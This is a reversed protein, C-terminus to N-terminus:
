LSKVFAVLATKEDDTFNAKFRQNYFEVLAEITTPLGNHMYPSRFEPSRIVPVKFCAIDAWKGTAAAKGPDTVTVTNKPDSWDADKWVGDVMQGKHFTFQPFTAVGNPGRFDDDLPTGDDLKGMLTVPNAEAIGIAVELRTTHNGAEAQNHCSACAGKITHPGTITAGKSPGNPPLDIPTDNLGNVGEITLRISNFLAEGKAALAKQPDSSGQWDEYLRMVQFDFPADTKYDGELLDNEGYYPTTMFLNMVGAHGGDAFLKGVNPDMSESKAVYLSEMFTTIQTAFATLEEPKYMTVGDPKLNGDIIRKPFTENAVQLIAAHNGRVNPDRSIAFRGDWGVGSIFAFNATPLPRRHTVLANHTYALYEDPDGTTTGNALTIRKSLSKMNVDSVGALRFETPLKTPMAPTGKLTEDTPTVSGSNDWGLKVIAVGHNILLSYNAQRDALTANGARGPDDATDKLFLPHAPQNMILGGNVNGKADLTQVHDKILGWGDSAFHCHECTKGNTGLPVFFPNKPDITQSGPSVFTRVKGSANDDGALTGEISSMDGGSLDPRSPSGGDPGGDAGTNGNNGCGALAFALM